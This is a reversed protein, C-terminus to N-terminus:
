ICRIVPVAQNRPSEPWGPPHGVLSFLFRAHLRVLADPRPRLRGRHSAGGRAVCSLPATAFTAHRDRSM